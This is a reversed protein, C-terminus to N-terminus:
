ELKDVEIEINSLSKKMERKNKKFIDVMKKYFFNNM